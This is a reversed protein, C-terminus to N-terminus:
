KNVMLSIPKPCYKIRLRDFGGMMKASGFGSPMELDQRDPDSDMDMEIFHLAASQLTPDTDPDADFGILIM